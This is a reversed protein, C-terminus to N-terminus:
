MELCPRLNNLILGISEKDNVSGNTGLGSNFTYVLKYLELDVTFGAFHHSSVMKPFHFTLSFIPLIFLISSDVTQPPRNGM